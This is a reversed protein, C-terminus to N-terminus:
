ELNKVATFHETQPVAVGPQGEALMAPGGASLWSHSDWM